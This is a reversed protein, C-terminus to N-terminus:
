AGVRNDRKCSFVIRLNHRFGRSVAFFAYFPAWYTSIAVTTLVDSLLNDQAIRLQSKVISQTCLSYIPLFINPLSSFLVIIIEALMIKTVQIEFRCRQVLRTSKFNFWTLTGFLILTPVPVIGIIFANFYM